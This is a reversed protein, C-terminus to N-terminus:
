PSPRRLCACIAPLKRGATGSVLHAIRGGADEWTAAVHERARQWFPDTSRFAGAEEIIVDDAPGASRAQHEGINRELETCPALPPAPPRTLASWTLRVARVVNHAEHARARPVARPRATGTLAAQLRACMEQTGEASDDQEASDPTCRQQLYALLMDRELELSSIREADDEPANGKM